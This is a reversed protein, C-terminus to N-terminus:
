PRLDRRGPISTSAVIGAGALVLLVGAALAWIRM